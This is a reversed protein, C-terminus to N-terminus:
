CSCFQQTGMAEFKNIAEVIAEPTQENFSLGTKGGNVTELSGGHGYVIVHTGCSQADIPIMGFDEDAVFGFDKAYQM